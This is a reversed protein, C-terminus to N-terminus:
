MVGVDKFIAIYSEIEQEFFERSEKSNMYIPELYNREIYDTLWEDTETVKKIVDEYYAVAAASMEPPALFGRVERFILDPYGVETFTPTNEFLGGMRENTYAVLPILEGAEVQGICEAPNFFGADLHGGLLATLSEGNSDFAVFAAQAGTYKNFMELAMHDSNGRQSGGMTITGPNQKAAEILEEISKFPSEKTVCITLNDFAVNAIYTLDNATVPSGNVITSMIQGSHMITLVHDDNKKEATYAYAVAGSGGPMNNVMFNKEMFSNKTVIDATTRAHLDSGGGAASPVVLEVERQPQFSDSQPTASSACGGLSSILVIAALMTIWKKM